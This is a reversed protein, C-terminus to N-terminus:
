DQDNEEEQIMDDDPTPEESLDCGDTANIWAEDADEGYGVLILKFLYKKM